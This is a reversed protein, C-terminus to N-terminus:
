RSAVTVDALATRILKRQDIQEDMWDQVLAKADPGLRPDALALRLPDPQQELRDEEAVWEELYSRMTQTPATADLVLEVDSVPANPVVTVFPGWAGGVSRRAALPCEAGRWCAVVFRGDPGAQTTGDVVNGIEAPAVPKGLADVVRGTVAVRQPRLAECTGTEGPWVNRWRVVLRPPDSKADSPYQIRAQGDPDEVGGVLVGNEVYGRTIGAVPGEPLADGVSCRVVGDGTYEAVVQLATEYSTPPASPDVPPVLVPDPAERHQPPRAPLVRRVPEAPRAEGAAVDVERPPGRLWWGTAGGCVAGILLGGAVKLRVNTM